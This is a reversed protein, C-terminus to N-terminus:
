LIFGWRPFFTLTVAKHFPARGTLDARAQLHRSSQSPQAATPRAGWQGPGVGKKPTHYTTVKEPGGGHGPAPNQPCPEAPGLLGPPVQFPPCQALLLHLRLSLPQAKKPPHSHPCVTLLFLDPPVWATPGTPLMQGTGWGLDRGRNTWRRKSGVTGRLLGPNRGTGM